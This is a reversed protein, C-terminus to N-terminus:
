GRSLVACVSFYEGDEIYDALEEKTKEIVAETPENILEIVEQQTMDLREPLTVEVPAGNSRAEAVQNIFEEYCEPSCAAARYKAQTYLVSLRFLPRPWRWGRKHL